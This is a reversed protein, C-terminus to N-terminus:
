NLSNRLTLNTDLINVTSVATGKGASDTNMNYLGQFLGVVNTNLEITADDADTGSLDYEINGDQTESEYVLDTLEFTAGSAFNYQTGNMITLRGGNLTAGEKTFPYSYKNESTEDVL